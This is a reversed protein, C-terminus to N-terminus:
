LSLLTIFALFLIEREVFAQRKAKPSTAHIETEAPM